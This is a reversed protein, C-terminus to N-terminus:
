KFFLFGKMPFHSYPPNFNSESAFTNDSDIIVRIMTWVIKFLNQIKTTTKFLEKFETLTRSFYKIEKNPKSFDKFNVVKHVGSM